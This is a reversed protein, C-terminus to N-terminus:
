ICSMTVKKLVDAILTNKSSMLCYSSYIREDERTQGEDNTFSLVTSDLLPCQTNERSFTLFFDQRSCFSRSHLRTLCLFCQLHCFFCDIDSMFSNKWMRQHFVCPRSMGSSSDWFSYNLNWNNLPEPLPQSRREAGHVTGRYCAGSWVTQDHFEPKLCMDQIVVWIRNRGLETDVTTTKRPEELARSKLTSSDTKNNM